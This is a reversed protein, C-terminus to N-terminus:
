VGAHAAADLVPRADVLHGALWAHTGPLGFALGMLETFYVAPIAEGAPRRLELSMQCLPCTTAIVDAGAERALALIRGVLAQAVEPNTIAHSAGCCETKGRWYVPEAGLAGVVEDLHVPNETRDFRTVEPPRVLLCGYYCAVRLGRLPRTVRDAIVEIGARRVLAELLSLATVGGLFRFGVADEIAAGASRDHRLAHEAQRLRNYCASCPAVVDLGKKQALALNRAPLALALLHDVSHASTAGCCNWDDLEVLEIGLAKCVARASADYEKGTAELSCGPYYALRIM